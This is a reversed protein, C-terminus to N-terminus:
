EFEHGDCLHHWGVMEDETVGKEEQRWDKGADSDKETLWNKADPPWLIPTEDKADTKGIFIWSRNGKPNIPQIEKCDMPSQVYLPSEIYWIVNHTHLSTHTFLYTCWHISLKSSAGVDTHDPHYELNVMPQSERTIGHQSGMNRSIPWMTYTYWFLDRVVPPFNCGRVMGRGTVLQPESGRFGRREM